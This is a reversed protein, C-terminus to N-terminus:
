SNQRITRVSVGFEVALDRVAEGEAIRRRIDDRQAATLKPRSYHPPPPQFGLGPENFERDSM